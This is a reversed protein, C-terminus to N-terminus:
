RRPPTRRSPLSGGRSSRSTPSTAPRSCMRLVTCRVTRMSRSSDTSRRRPLGDIRPGRLRPLAVVRDARITGEPVLRLEGEVLEVPASGTQLAIGREELLQRVADSGAQGFLQLPADEPTVLSLEVDSLERDALYAATMLALEYIPLSRCM